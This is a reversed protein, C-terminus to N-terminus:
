SGSRAIIDYRSGGAGPTSAFLSIRNVPFPASRFHSWAELYPTAEAGKGLRAVTVHPRFPRTDPGIGLPVLADALREHLRRLPSEPQAGLWIARHRFHGAGTLTLNFHGLGFTQVLREIGACDNDPVNGLFNLTLHLQEDTQWRAHALPMHTALVQTKIAAPLELGIFLRM